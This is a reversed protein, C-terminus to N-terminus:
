ERGILSDAADRHARLESALSQRDPTDPQRELQMLGTHARARAERVAGDELARRSIRSLARATAMAESAATRGDRVGAGDHTMDLAAAHYALLGASSPTSEIDSQAYWAVAARHLSIRREDAIARYVRDRILAHKFAYRARPMPREQRILDARALHHLCIPLQERAEVDPFVDALTAFAFQRGLVSAVDLTLRELPSLLAVRDAILADLTSPHEIADIPKETVCVTGETRILGADRLGNAFQEAFLPHGGTTRQVLAGVADPLEDVVLWRRVLERTDAATMPGLTMHRTEPHELLRRYSSHGTDVPRTTLALLLPRDTSKVLELLAWSADDLWHADEIVLLMPRATPGPWGLDRFVRALYRPVTAAREDGYLRPDSDPSDPMPSWDVDLVARLLPALPRASEPLRERVRKRIEDADSVRTIDFLHAFVSRWAHYPTAQAAQDARAIFISLAPDAKPRAHDLLDGILRSKGIGAVGEVIVAGRTHAVEGRAARAHAQDLVERTIASEDARGVIRDRRRARREVRPPEVDDDTHESPASPASPASPMPRTPKRGRYEFVALRDDRDHRSIHGLPEFLFWAEGASAIRESTLIQRPQARAMLRMATAFQACVAMRSRRGPGGIDGLAITGRELGVHVSDVFAMEDTLSVILAAASLAREITPDDTDAERGGCFVAQVHTNAGSAAVQVVVGDDEHVIGQLWRVCADLKEPSAPDTEYRLGTFAVSLLVASHIEGSAPPEHASADRDPWPAPDDVASSADDSSDALADSSLAVIAFRDPTEDYLVRSDDIDATTLAPPSPHWAAATVREDLAGFVYADVVLRTNTAMQEAVTLRDLLDGALVDFVRVDPDGALFRYANGHAIAIRLGLAPTSHDGSAADPVRTMANHLHLACAYARTGRDLDFWCTLAGDHFGTVSGRFRHVQEVLATYLSSADAVWSLTEPARVRAEIREHWGEITVSLVAGRALPALPTARAQAHRRDM